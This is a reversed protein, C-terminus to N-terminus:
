SPHSNSTPIAIAGPWYIRKNLNNYDVKKAKSRPANRSAINFGTLQWPPPAEPCVTRKDRQMASINVQTVSHAKYCSALLSTILLVCVRWFTKGWGVTPAGDALLLGLARLARRAPKFFAAVKM